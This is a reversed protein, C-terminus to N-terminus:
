KEPVDEGPSQVQCRGAMHVNIEGGKGVNMLLATLIEHLKKGGWSLPPSRSKIFPM